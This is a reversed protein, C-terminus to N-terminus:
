DNEALYDTPLHPATLKRQRIQRPDATPQMYHTQILADEDDTTKAHRKDLSRCEGSCLGDVSSRLQPWIIQTAPKDGSNLPGSAVVRTISVDSTAEEQGTM